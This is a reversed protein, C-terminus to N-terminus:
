GFRGTIYDQTQKERPATFMRPTSDVEVLRGMYFFAVQDACRAAQQMNHTVIAITFEGKLEDLLEEIRATSVPDLASTPEDLLIVEPRVAITRAICLRQQQGGSLATASSHLRNQVESWLAVRRLSDEVRGDMESRSVREHLRIGFAINDYISMPFPTPKQFVMGVRSRLVNLNVGPALINQNDFLVEGTARQGPYLDYMRNLVRLLTSKGCGSPGIMGTVSREPFRISIDHLAHSTGYYFNLGRVEMAAPRALQEDHESMPLTAVQAVGVAEAGSRVAAQGSEQSGSLSAQTSGTAQVGTNM